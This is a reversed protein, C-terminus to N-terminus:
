VNVQYPRFYFHQVQIVALFDHLLRQRRHCALVVVDQYVTRRRQPQNGDIGQGRGIRDNNRHLALIECQFSDAFQQIGYPNDLRLQIRRKFYFSEQQGHEVRAQTQCILNIVLHFAMKLFQYELGDDLTIYFQALCGAMSDRGDQIIGIRCSGLVIQRKGILYDVLVCFLLSGYYNRLLVHRYLLFICQASSKVGQNRGVLFDLGRARRGDIFYLQILYRDIRVLRPALEVRYSQLFKGVRNCLYADDLGNGQALQIFVRVLNYCAFPTVPSSYLSSQFGYRGVDPRSIIFIHHFHCQYLVDLALVKVRQFDGKGVLVEDLLVSQGLFSQAVAHSLFASGNGIVQTQEFQRGRDLHCQLVLFYIHSM